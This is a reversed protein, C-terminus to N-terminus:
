LMGDVVRVLHVLDSFTAAVEVGRGAASRSTLHAQSAPERIGELNCPDAVNPHSVPSPRSPLSIGAFANGKRLRSMKAFCCLVIATCTSQGSQRKAGLMTQTHLLLWALAALRLARQIGM